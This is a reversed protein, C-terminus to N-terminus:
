CLHPVSLISSSVLQVAELVATSRELIGALEGSGRGALRRYFGAAINQSAEPLGVGSARSHRTM